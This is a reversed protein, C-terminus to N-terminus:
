HLGYKDMIAKRQDHFTTIGFQQDLKHMRNAIEPDAPTLKRSAMDPIIKFFLEELFDEFNQNFYMDTCRAVKDTANWFTHAIGRPRLHWGGAKVEYVNDGVLISVTGEHVYMLEDLDRHVHPAPGMVKPAIAVDVASYQMNTQSSRVKVRIAIGPGPDLPSADPPIYFPKLDNLSGFAKSGTSLGAVALGALLGSKLFQKREM